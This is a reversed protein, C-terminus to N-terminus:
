WRGCQYCREIGREIRKRTLGQGCCLFTAPLGAEGAQAAFAIPENGAQFATIALSSFTRCPARQLTEQMGTTGALFAREAQELRYPLETRPDGILQHLGGHDSSGTHM